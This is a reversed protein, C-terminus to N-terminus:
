KSSDHESWDKWVKLFTWDKKLDSIRKGSFGVVEWGSLGEYWPDHYDSYFGELALSRIDLARERSKPDLYMKRFVINRDPDNLDRFPKAFLRGSLDEIMRVTDRFYDQVEKPFEYLHSDIYRVTGVERAGPETKPDSGSPVIFSSFCEFFTVEERTLVYYSNRAAEVRDKSM